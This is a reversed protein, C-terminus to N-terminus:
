ERNCFRGIRKDNGGLGLQGAPNGIKVFLFSWFEKKM